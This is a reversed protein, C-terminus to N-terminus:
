IKFIYNVATMCYAIRFFYNRISFEFQLCCQISRYIVGGGGGFVCVYMCVCMCYKDNMCMVCIYVICGTVYCCRAYLEQHRLNGCVHVPTIVFMLDHGWPSYRSKKGVYMPRMCGCLKM